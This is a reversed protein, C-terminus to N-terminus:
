DGAKPLSRPRSQNAELRKPKLWGVGTLGSWSTLVGRMLLAFLLEDDAGGTRLFCIVFEQAGAEADHPDEPARHETDCSL